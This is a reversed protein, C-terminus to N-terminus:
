NTHHTDPKYLPYKTQIALMGKYVNRHCRFKRRSDQFIQRYTERVQYPM